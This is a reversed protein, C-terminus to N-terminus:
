WGFGVWVAFAATVLQSTTQKQDATLGMMLRETYEVCGRREIECMKLLAQVFVARLPEVGDRKGPHAGYRNWHVIHVVHPHFVRALRFLIVKRSLPCDTLSSASEWHQSIDM